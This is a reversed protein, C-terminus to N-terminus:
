EKLRVTAGGGSPCEDPAKIGVYSSWIASIQMGLVYILIDFCVTNGSSRTSYIIVPRGQSVEDQTARIRVGGLHRTKGFDYPAHSIEGEIHAKRLLKRFHNYGALQADFINPVAGVVHLLIKGFDARLFNEFVNLFIKKLACTNSCPSETLVRSSTSM